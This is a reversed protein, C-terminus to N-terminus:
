KSRGFDTLHGGVKAIAKTFFRLDSPRRISAIKRLIFAPNMFSKYLERTYEQLSDMAESRMVGERMDYRDWEKTVLWDNKECEDFLPTGPYPIVITAQLSDVYGNKFLRKALNITNQAEEKSEWPYGVMATIHPELGAEKAAKVGEEIQEVKLNKNIRDLTTQNASELGFLIFRFGAKKMLKYEELGLEGFRMNCDFNIKKNFGKAIMGECFEKLWDGVPFSGSDDMIEKVGYDSILKGIENLVNDVSRTRYNKGPYITTWSCFTCRGWWCDRASMIYTGPTRKYNGNKESYLKWKTLDRNIFPAKNLNNNLVCPGSSSINGNERFYIGPELLKQQKINNALSLALFDYDGGTLVYDVNSNEFSEKPLATAHDGVLVIKMKNFRQKLDDIIKWHDYIVPTKTEMILLQPNVNKVRSIFEEYSWQEAIGDLWHVDFGEKNLFTAMTAPVVPYIYTPDNFWQFQRNQGLLPTGKESELPPYAVVIKM